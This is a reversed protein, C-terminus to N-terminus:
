ATLREYDDIIGGLIDRQYIPGSTPLPPHIPDPLAPGLGSPVAAGRLVPFRGTASVRLRRQM